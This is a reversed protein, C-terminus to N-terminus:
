ARNKKKNEWRKRYLKMAEPDPFNGRLNVIEGRNIMDDQIVYSEDLDCTDFYLLRLSVKHKLAKQREEETMIKKKKEVYNKCETVLFRELEDNNYIQYGSEIFDYETINKKVSDVIKKCTLCNACNEWCLHTQSNFFSYDIADSFIKKSISGIGNSDDIELGCIELLKDISSGELKMKELLLLKDSDLNSIIKKFYLLIIQKTAISSILEPNNDLQINLTYLLRNTYEYKSDPNLIQRLDKSEDFMMYVIKKLDDISKVEKLGDYLKSLLDYSDDISVRSIKEIMTSIVYICDDIDERSFTINQKFINPFFNPNKVLKIKADATNAIKKVNEEIVYDKDKLIITYM